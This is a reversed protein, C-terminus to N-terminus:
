LACCVADKEPLMQLLGDKMQKEPVFGQATATMALVFSLALLVIKKM